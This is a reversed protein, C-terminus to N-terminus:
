GIVRNWGKRYDIKEYCDGYFKIIVDFIKRIVSRIRWQMEGVIADEGILLVVYYPLENFFNSWLWCHEVFLSIGDIVVSGKRKLNNESNPINFRKGKMQELEIYSLEPAIDM